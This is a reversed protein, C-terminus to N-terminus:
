EGQDEGGEPAADGGSEPAEEPTEEPAEEPAEAPTEGGSVIRVPDGDNLYAQGVTVLQQGATLGTLIETVGNGTLGTSVEM